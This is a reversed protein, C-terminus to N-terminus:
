LGTSIGGSRVITEIDRRERPSLRSLSQEARLERKKRTAVERPDYREGRGTAGRWVQEAEWEIDELITKEKFGVTPIEPKLPHVFREPRIEILPVQARTPPPTVPTWRAIYEATPPPLAMVYERLSIPTGTLAPAGVGGLSPTAITGTAGTVDPPYSPAATPATPARQWGRLVFFALAGIAFLGLGKNM